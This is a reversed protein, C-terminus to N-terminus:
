RSLQVVAKPVVCDKSLSLGAPLVVRIPLSYSGARLSRDQLSSVDVVAMISEPNVTTVLQEEGVVTLSITDNLSVEAVRKWGNPTVLKVPISELVRLTPSKRIEVVALVREKCYVGPKLKLVTNKEVSERENTIDISQTNLFTLGQVVERSGLVEVRSPRAYRGSLEYGAAPTGKVAVRVEVQKSVQRELRLYLVKPSFSEVTVEDPLGLINDATLRVQHEGIARQPVDYRVSLSRAAIGSMQGRRARLTVTVQGPVGSVVTLDVPLVVNFKVRLARTETLEDHVYNWVLVALLLSGLLLLGNSKFYGRVSM